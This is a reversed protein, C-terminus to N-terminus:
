SAPVIPLLKSFLKEILISLESNSDHDIHRKEYYSTVVVVFEWNKNKFDVLHGDIDTFKIHLTDIDSRDNFFIEDGSKFVQTESFAVDFPIRCTYNTGTLTNYHPCFVDNMTIIISNGFRLDPPFTADFDYGEQGGVFGLMKSLPSEVVTILNGSMSEIGVREKLSSFSFTVTKEDVSNLVAMMEYIDYSNIPITLTVVSGNDQYVFKNSSPTVNDFVNPFTGDAIRISSAVYDETNPVSFFDPIFYYLDSNKSNATSTSSRPSFLYEKKHQFFNDM